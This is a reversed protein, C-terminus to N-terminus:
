KNTCAVEAVQAVAAIVDTHAVPAASIGKDSVVTEVLPAARSRLAVLLCRSRAHVSDAMATATDLSLLLNNSSISRGCCPKCNDCFDFTSKYSKDCSCSHCIDCTCRKTNHVVKHERDIHNALKYKGSKAKNVDLDSKWKRPTANNDLSMPYIIKANRVGSGARTNRNICDQWHSGGGM